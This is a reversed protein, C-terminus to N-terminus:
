RLLTVNGKSTFVQGNDCVVQMIFVFVDPQLVKGKYM